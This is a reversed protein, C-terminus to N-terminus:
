SKHTIVVTAMSKHTTVLTAMTNVVNRCQTNATIVTATIITTIAAKRFYKNIEIVISSNVIRMCALALVITKTNPELLPCYWATGACIMRRVDTQFSIIRFHCYIRATQHQDLQWAVFRKIRLM